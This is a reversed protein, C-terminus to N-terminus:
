EDDELAILAGLKMAKGINSQSHLQRGSLKQVTGDIHNTVVFQGDSSLMITKRSFLGGGRLILRFENCGKSISQRLQRIDRIQRM